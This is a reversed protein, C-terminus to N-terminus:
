YVLQSSLYYHSIGQAFDNIRHAEHIGLQRSRTIIRVLIRILKTLAEKPRYQRFNLKDRLDIINDFEDM